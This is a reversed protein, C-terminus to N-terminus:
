SGRGPSGIVSKSPGQGTRAGSTTMAQQSSSRRVAGRAARSAPVAAIQASRTVWPLRAVIRINVSRTYAATRYPGGSEARRMGQIVPSSVTAPESTGNATHRTGCASSIPTTVPMTANPGRGGAPDDAVVAVRGVGGPQAGFLRRQEGLHVAGLRDQGLPRPHGPFQVVHDGVM